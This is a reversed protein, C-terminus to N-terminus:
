RSFRLPFFHRRADGAFQERGVRLSVADAHQHPERLSGIIRRVAVSSHFLQMQKVAVQRDIVLLKIGAIVNPAFGVADIMTYPAFGAARANENRRGFVCKRSKKNGRGAADMCGHTEAASTDGSIKATGLDTLISGHPLVDAYKLLGSEKQSLVTGSCGILCGFVLTEDATVLQNWVVPVSVAGEALGNGHNGHQNTWMGLGM